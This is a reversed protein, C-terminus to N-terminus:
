CMGAPLVENWSPSLTIIINSGIITSGINTSIIISDLVINIFIM